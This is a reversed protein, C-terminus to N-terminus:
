VSTFIVTAAAPDAEKLKVDIAAGLPLNPSQCTALIAPECIQVTGSKAGSELVIAKFTEGVRHELLAAEMLDVARRELERGKKHSSRMVEPMEAVAAVAWGAAPTGACHAIVLENVFRDALRRLPATVHAYPAAIAAHRAIAGGGVLTYGTGRFLHAASSLLAAEKPHTPDLKRIFPAYGTGETRAVGLAQAAVMLNTLAENDFEPMTRLLGQGAEIQMDAAAMGTLLSIQANWGEVPLPARYILEFTDGVRHIEQQPAALSVGGREEELKQLLPGVIALLRLTERATGSDIEEQAEQYTLQQRSRVVARRVSTSIRRAGGDLLHEYLVAHRAPGALLSAAGESLVPPYLPVREDPAYLTQGRRRAEADVAGGPNVFRGIDAIAYLVKFGSGTEEICLAQDLDKSGVPDITILDHDLMEPGTILGLAAAASAAEAEVEPPFSRPLDMSRRIAAFGETLSMTPPRLRFRPQRQPLFARRIMPIWL